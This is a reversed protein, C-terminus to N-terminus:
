RRGLHEDPGLREEKQRMECFLKLLGKKKLATKTIKENKKDGERQGKKIREPEL